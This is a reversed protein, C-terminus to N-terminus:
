WKPYDIILEDPDYKVWNKFWYDIIVKQYDIIVRRQVLYIWFSTTAVALNANFNMYITTPSVERYINAM